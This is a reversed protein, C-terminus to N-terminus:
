PNCAAQIRLKFNLRNNFGFGKRKVLKIKNNVGEARGNSLPSLFANLIPEWWRELTKVHKRAATSWETLAQAVESRSAWKRKLINRFAQVQWYVAKLESNLRLYERVLRREDRNLGKYDKFLLFRISAFRKEKKAKKLEAHTKNRLTELTKNLLKILHFRDAVIEAAPMAQRIADAFPACLDICVEQIKGIGPIAKLVEQLSLSKKGSMTELVETETYIITEFDSHGKKLAIEDIHLTRSL